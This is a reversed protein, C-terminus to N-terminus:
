PANVGSHICSSVLQILNYGNWKYGRTSCQEVKSVHIWKYRWTYVCVTLLEDYDDPAMGCFNRYASPDSSRLLSLLAVHTGHQPRKQLWDRVWSSRPRQRKRRAVLAVVVSIICCLSDDDDDTEM